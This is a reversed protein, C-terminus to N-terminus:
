KHYKETADYYWEQGEEGVEVGIYPSRPEANAESYGVGNLERIFM